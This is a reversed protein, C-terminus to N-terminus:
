AARAPLPSARRGKPDHKELLQEYLELLLADRHSRPPTLSAIRAAFHALETPERRDIPEHIDM